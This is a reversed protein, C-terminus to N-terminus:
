GKKGAKCVGTWGTALVGQPAPPVARVLLAGTLGPAPLSSAASPPDV